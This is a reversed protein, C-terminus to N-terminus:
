KAMSTLAFVAGQPDRGRLIWQGGPVQQPGITVTGGLRAVRQAAAEIADVHFYIRWGPAPADPEKTMVAGADVGDIQFLQYLGMPGMDLGEGKTWAFQTAYFEFATPGDMAHLEHWGVTGPTGPAPLVPPGDAPMPKFLVFAAGQPDTVTAFRGVGPIDGAPRLVKGGARLLRAEAADVDDVAVYGRWAPAVGAARLEAPTALMGALGADGVKLLTYDVGPMGSDQAQWGVVSSYFAAAASLDSTMLEHWVFHATPM